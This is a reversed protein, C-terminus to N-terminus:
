PGNTVAANVPTWQLLKDKSTTSQMEILKIEAIGPVAFNMLEM